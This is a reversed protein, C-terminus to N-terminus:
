ETVIARIAWGGDDRELTFLWVRAKTDSSPQSAAECNATAHDENVTVDCTELSLLGAHSANDHTVLRGNYVQRFREVALRVLVQDDHVVRVGPDVASDGISAGVVAAAQSDPGSTGRTALPAAGAVVATARVIFRDPANGLVWFPYCTILTLTAERTPALVSLDYPKVVRVSTVRYHFQGMPTRLFIDDALKINRLPWFFSDRHGAIVVNGAEGPFATHELHGPGRRLTTADSGHLVVASLQVRPISLAGIASGTHVVSDHPPADVAAEVAPMLVPSDVPLAAELARRANRQAIVSDGVLLACVILLTVGAALLLREAWLLARPGRRGSQEEHPHRM